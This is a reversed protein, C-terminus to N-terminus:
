RETLGGHCTVLLYRIAICMDLHNILYRVCCLEILSDFVRDRYYYSINPPPFLKMMTRKIPWIPNQLTIELVHGTCLTSPTLRLHVGKASSSLFTNVPLATYFFRSRKIDSIFLLLSQHRSLGKIVSLHLFFVKMDSRVRTKHIALIRPLVSIQEHYVYHMAPINGIHRLVCFM